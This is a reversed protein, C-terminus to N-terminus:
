AQSDQIQEHSMLGCLDAKWYPDQSRCSRVDFRITELFDYRDYSDLSDPEEARYGGERQQKISNM